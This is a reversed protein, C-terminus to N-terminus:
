HNSLKNWFEYQFKIAMAIIHAPSLKLPTILTQPEAEVLSIFAATFPCTWNGKRGNGKRSRSHSSATLRREQMIPVQGQMEWAGSSQSFLKRSTICVGIDYIRNNLCIISQFTTLLILHKCSTKPLWFHSSLLLCHSPFGPWVWYIMETKRPQLLLTM